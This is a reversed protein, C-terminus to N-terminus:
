RRDLTGVTGGPLVSTTAGSSYYAFGGAAAALVGGPLSVWLPTKLHYILLGSGYAGIAAFGHQALSFQGTFGALMNWSAALLVYYASIALVHVSFEGMLPPLGILPVLVIALVAALRRWAILAGLGTSLRLPM